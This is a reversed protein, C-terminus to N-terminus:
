ENEEILVGRFEEFFAHAWIYFNVNTPRTHLWYPTQTGQADSPYEELSVTTELYVNDTNDYIKIKDGNKLIHFGEYASGSVDYMEDQFAWYGGETGTESWFFFTGTM